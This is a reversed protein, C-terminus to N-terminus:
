QAWWRWNGNMGAIFTLSHSFLTLIYIFIINHLNPLIIWTDCVENAITVEKDRYIFNNDSCREMKNSDFNHAYCYGLSENQPTQRNTYNSVFRNCQDLGNTKM